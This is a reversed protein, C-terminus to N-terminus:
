GTQQGSSAQPQPRWLKPMQKSICRIEASDSARGAAVFQTEARTHLYTLIKETIGDARAPPVALQPSVKLAPVAVVLRDRPHRSVPNVMTSNITTTAVIPM